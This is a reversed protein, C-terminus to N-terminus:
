RGVVNSLMSHGGSSFSSNEHTVGRLANPNPLYYTLYTSIGIGIDSIKLGDIFRKLWTEGSTLGAFMSGVYFLSNSVASIGGQMAAIEWDVNGFSISQGIANGALGGIMGFGAAIFFGWPGPTALAIAVGITGIVGDIFGGFFAGVTSEEETKNIAASAGALAGAALIGLAVLIWGFVTGTPDVNMVPNDGCYAYLNLGVVSEPDLYSVDDPSIFRGAAPDYYRSQLYYLGFEKDWYYGRYRFPNINGISNIDSSIETGDAYFAKHKGWAHYVHKVM